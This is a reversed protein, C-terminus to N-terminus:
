KPSPLFYGAIHIGSFRGDHIEMFGKCKDALRYTQREKRKM